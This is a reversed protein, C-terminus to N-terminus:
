SSTLLSVWELGRFTLGVRNGYVRYALGIEVLEALISKEPETNSYVEGPTQLKLFYNRKEKSSLVQFERERCMGSTRKLIAILSAITTAERGLLNSEAATKLQDLNYLIEVLNGERNSIYKILRDQYTEIEKAFDIM